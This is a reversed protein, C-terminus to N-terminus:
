RCRGNGWRAAGPSRPVPGHLAPAPLVPAPDPSGRTRDVEGLTPTRQGTGTRGGRALGAAGHGGLLGKGM